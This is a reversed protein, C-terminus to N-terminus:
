KFFGGRWISEYDRVKRRQRMSLTKSHVMGLIFGVLCSGVATIFIGM